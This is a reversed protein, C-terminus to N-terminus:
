IQKKTNIARAGIDKRFQADKFYICKVGMYAKDIAKEIDDGMGTVGLVRGGSTYFKGDKVTTGAHFVFIDELEGAKDLGNIEYDKVYKGPYGGSAMVICVAPKKDWELRINKLNGSVVAEIVDMLDTELRMLIPQTEPDGFRVNFELVKPGKSTLMVGTYLVGKYDIAEEKFGALIRDLIEERIQEVLKADVVPAPSYAGMGGTNPGKDGDDIRKHDQSSEMLTITEGDCFALISAEEGNLCEEIIIKDGADGFVKQEMILKVSKSAEDASNCVFVGKGAALGDAKIVIPVGKKNIYGLASSVDTFVEFDATPINYKRMFEKSFVKSGELRAGSKVPGFIKLGNKEFENSIGATLPVEPGVVTYDIKNEIAFNILQAINDAKINVCDALSAIGGNGPACFLKSVSSSKSLKWILAHERGGSGIVLVKM